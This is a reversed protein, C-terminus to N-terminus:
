RTRIRKPISDSSTVIPFTSSGGRMSSSPMTQKAEDHQVVCTMTEPAEETSAKKRQTWGAFVMQVPVPLFIVVGVVQGFGWDNSTYPLASREDLAQQISRLRFIGWLLPLALVLPVLACFVRTAVSREWVDELYRQFRVLRVMVIPDDAEDVGANNDDHDGRWRRVAVSVLFGVVFAFLAISAVLEFVALLMFEDGSLAADDGTCMYAVKAWEADSVATEGSAANGDGIRSRGWNHVCQSLFPYIYVATLLIFLFARFHHRVRRMRTLTKEATSDDRGSRPGDLVGPSLLAVPYMHPLICLVSIAVAIQLDNSGFGATSVGFDKYVLMVIAALEVALAFYISCDWFAEFGAHLLVRAYNWFRGEKSNVALLTIAFVSGLGVELAYGISVQWADACNAM